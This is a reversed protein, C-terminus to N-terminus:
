NVHLTPSPYSPKNLTQKGKVIEQAERFLHTYSENELRPLDLMIDAFGAEGCITIEQPAYHSIQILLKKTFVKPIGPLYKVM